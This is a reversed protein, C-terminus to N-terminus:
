VRVEKLGWARRLGVGKAEGGFGELGSLSVVGSGALLGEGEFRFGILGLGM